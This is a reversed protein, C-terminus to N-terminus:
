AKAIIWGRAAKEKEVDALTMLGYRRLARIWRPRRQGDQKFVGTYDFEKDIYPKQNVVVWHILLALKHAVAMVAKCFGKHKWGGFLVALHSGKTHCAAQACETLVKKILRQGHPTRGSKIQGASENNGPCVGLWRAFAHPSSFNEVFDPGIMSMMLQASKQSVGPITTMLRINQKVKECKKLERIVTQELTEIEKTHTEILRLISQVIDKNIQSLEGSVADLIEKISKKCLPDIMLALEERPADELIGAILSQSSAGGIDAFAVTFRFGSDDLVKVLRNKLRQREAVLSKIQSQVLRLSRYPEAPIFSARYLGLRALNALWTADSKDTKRKDSGRNFIRPNILVPHLDAKELDRFPAKWFIGTSEMLILDANQSSCWETLRQRGSYTGTSEFYEKEHVERGKADHQVHVACAVLRNKHVDLGITSFNVTSLDDNCKARM